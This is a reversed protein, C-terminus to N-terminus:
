CWGNWNWWNDQLSTSFFALLHLHLFLWLLTSVSSSNPRAICRLLVRSTSAEVADSLGPFGSIFTLKRQARSSLLMLSCPSMNFVSVWSAAWFPINILSPRRLLPFRIFHQFCSRPSGHTPLWCTRDGLVCVLKDNHRHCPSQCRWLILGKTLRPVTWTKLMPLMQIWPFSNSLFKGNWWFYLFCDWM